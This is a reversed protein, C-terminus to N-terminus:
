NRVAREFLEVIDLVQMQDEKELNKVGDSIMTLCFPCATAVMDANTELAEKTRLINIDIDGKEAEKFMQSGGAGCCLGFAKNQKMEMIDANLFKLVKRPSEYIGNSRGLYCSDHYTIKLHPNDIKWSKVKKNESILSELFESHHYIEYSGGLGPYENKITNYCHPCATIIKKINYNNLVQINALAQM